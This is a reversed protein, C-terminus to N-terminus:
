DSETVKNEKVRDRLTEIVKSTTTYGIDSLILAEELEEFFDEDVKRFNKIVNNVKASFSARTKNVREKLKDFLGM